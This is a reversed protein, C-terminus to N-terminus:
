PTTEPNPRDGDDAANWAAVAADSQTKLVALEEASVDEGAQIKQGILGLKSLMTALETVLSVWALIAIPDTM